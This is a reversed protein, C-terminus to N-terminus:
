LVFKFFDDLKDSLSDPKDVDPQNWKFQIIFGFTKRTVNINVICFENSKCFM